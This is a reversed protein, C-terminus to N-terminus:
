EMVPFETLPVSSTFPCNLLGAAFLMGAVAIMRPIWTSITRLALPVLTSSSSTSRIFAPEVVPMVSWALPVSQPVLSPM